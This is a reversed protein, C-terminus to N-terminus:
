WLNAVRALQLIEILMALHGSSIRQDDHDLYQLSHDDHDFYQLSRDDNYFYQLTIM